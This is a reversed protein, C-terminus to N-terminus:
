QRAWGCRPSLLYAISLEFRVKRGTEGHKKHWREMKVTKNTACLIRAM